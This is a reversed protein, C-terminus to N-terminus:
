TQYLQLQLLIICSSQRDTLVQSRTPVSDYNPGIEFRRGTKPNRLGFYVRYLVQEKKYLRFVPENLWNEPKKLNKNANRILCRNNSSLILIKSDLCTLLVQSRPVLTNSSALKITDHM